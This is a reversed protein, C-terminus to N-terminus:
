PVRRVKLESRPVLEILALFALFLIPLGIYVGQLNLWILIVPLAAFLALSIEIRRSRELGSHLLYAFLAALPIVLDYVLGYPSIMMTGLALIAISLNQDAPLAKEAWWLTGVAVTLAVCAHLAYAVQVSAGWQMFWAYPAVMLIWVFGFPQELVKRQYPITVAVYDHWVGTGFLLVSLVALAIVTGSAAFITQWERRVLLVPAVLLGLHPKIALIGLLVGALWPRSKTLRLGGVFLFAALLTAQAISLTFLVCPALLLLGYWHMNGKASQGANAAYYLAVLSAGIWGALAVSYPLYGLPAVLPLAYPPYSFNMFPHDPSFVQQMARAYADLDYIVQSRGTVALRGAMWFNSFDRGVIYSYQDYWGKLPLFIQSLVYLTPLLAALIAQVMFTPLARQAINADM